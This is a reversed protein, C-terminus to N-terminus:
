LGAKDFLLDLREVGLLCCGSDLKKVKCAVPAGEKLLLKVNQWVDPFVVIRFDAENWRVTCHAM